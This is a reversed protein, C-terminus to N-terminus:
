LYYEWKLSLKFYYTSVESEKATLTPFLATRATEPGLLDALAISTILCYSLSKLKNSNYFYDVNM